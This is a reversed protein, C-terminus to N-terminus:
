QNAQISRNRSGMGHRSMSRPRAMWATYTNTNRPAAQALKALLSMLLQRSLRGRHAATAPHRRDRAAGVHDGAPEDAPRQPGGDCGPVGGAARRQRRGRAPGLRTPDRDPRVGDVGGALGPPDGRTDDTWQPIP